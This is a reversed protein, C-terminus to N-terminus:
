SCYAISAPPAVNLQHNWHPFISRAMEKLKSRKISSIASYSLYCSSISWAHPSLSVNSSMVRLLNSWCDFTDSSGQRIKRDFRPPDELLSSLFGGFRFLTRSIHLQCM